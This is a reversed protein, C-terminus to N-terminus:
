ATPLPLLPEFWRNRFIRAIQQGHSFSVFREIAQLPILSRDIGLTILSNTGQYDARSSEKVMTRPVWAVYVGKFNAASRMQLLEWVEVCRRLLTEDDQCIHRCVYASVWPWSWPPHPRNSPPQFRDILKDPLFNQYPRSPQFPAHVENGFTNTCVFILLCAFARRLIIRELPSRSAPYAPVLEKRNVWPAPGEIFMYWSLNVQRMAIIDSVSLMQMFCMQMDSSLLNLKGYRHQNLRQLWTRRPQLAPLSRCAMRGEISVTCHEHLLSLRRHVQERTHSDIFPESLTTAIVSRQVHEEHGFRFRFLSNSLQKLNGLALDVKEKEDSSAFLLHKLSAPFTRGASAAEILVRAVSNMYVDTLMRTESFLSLLVEVPRRFWTNRLDSWWPFRNAFRSLFFEMAACMEDATGIFVYTPEPDPDIKAGEPMEVFVHSRLGTKNCRKKHLVRVSRAGYAVVDYVAQCCCESARSRILPNSKTAEVMQRFLKSIKPVEEGVVARFVLVTEGEVFQHVHQLHRVSFPVEPNATEEPMNHWWIPDDAAGSVSLLLPLRPAPLGLATVRHTNQERWATFSQVAADRSSNRLPNLSRSYLETNQRQM